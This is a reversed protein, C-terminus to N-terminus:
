EGTGGWGKPLHYVVIKYKTHDGVIRYLEDYAHTLIKFIANAEQTKRKPAFLWLHDSQLIVGPEVIETEYSALTPFKLNPKLPHEVPQSAPATTQGFAILPLCLVGLIGLCYKRM